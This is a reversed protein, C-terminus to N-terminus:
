PMGEWLFLKPCVDMTKWFGRDMVIYRYGEDCGLTLKALLFLAKIQNKVNQYCIFDVNPPINDHTREKTVEQQNSKMFEEGVGEQQTCTEKSFNTSSM